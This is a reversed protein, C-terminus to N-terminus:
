RYKFRLSTSLPLVSKIQLCFGLPFIKLKEINCYKCFLIEDTLLINGESFLNLCIYDGKSWFIGTIMPGKNCFMYNREGGKNITWQDIDIEFM